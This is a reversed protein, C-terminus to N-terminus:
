FGLLSVIQKLLVTLHIFTKQLNPPRYALQIAQYGLIVISGVDQKVVCRKKVALSITESCSQKQSNHLYRLISGKNLLFLYFCLDSNKQRYLQNEKVNTTTQRIIIALQLDTNEVKKKNTEGCLLGICSRVATSSWPQTGQDAELNCSSPQRIPLQNVSQSPRRLPRQTSGSVPLDILRGNHNDIILRIHLSVTRKNRTQCM